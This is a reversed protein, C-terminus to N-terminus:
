GVLAPQSRAPQRSPQGWRRPAPGESRRAREAGAAHGGSARAAGRDRSTPQSHRTPRAPESLAHCRLGLARVPWRLRRRCLGRAPVSRAGFECRAILASLAESSGSGAGIRMRDVQCRYRACKLRPTRDLRPTIPGRQARRATPHARPLTAPHGDAHNASAGDGRGGNGAAGDRAPAARAKGAFARRGAGGGRGRGAPAAGRGAPRRGSRGGQAPTPATWAGGGAAGAGARGGVAGGSRGAGGRWRRAVARAVSGWGPAIGWGAPWFLQVGIAKQYM